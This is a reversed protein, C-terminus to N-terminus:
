EIWQGPPPGGLVAVPSASTNARNTSLEPRGRRGVSRCADALRDVGALLAAGWGTRPSEADRM